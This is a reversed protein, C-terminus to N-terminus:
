FRGSTRLRKSTSAAVALASLACGYALVVTSSAFAGLLVGALVPGFPAGLAAIQIAASTARGQVADTAQEAITGFAIANVAPALIFAAAGLAGLVYPSRVALL